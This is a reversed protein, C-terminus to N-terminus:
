RGSRAVIPQTAKTIDDLRAWCIWRLGLENDWSVCVLGEALTEDTFCVHSPRGAHVGPINPAQDITVTGHRGSRHFVKTGAPIQEGLAKLHAALEDSDDVLGKYYSTNM